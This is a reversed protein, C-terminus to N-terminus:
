HSLRSVLTRADQLDPTNLGETFWSYVASLRKRAEDRRGQKELVRALSTTARLEFSKASQARAIDVATRFCLEAQALKHPDQMLMLEGKLRHLESSQWRENTEESLRMARALAQLGQEATGIQLCGEGFYGLVFAFIAGLADLGEIGRRMEAIGRERDENEMLARGHVVAFWHAHFLFGYQSALRIGAESQQQSAQWSRMQVNLASAYALINVARLPLNQDQAAGLAERMRESAQDPYGLCWLTVGLYGRANQQEARQRSSLEITRELYQRSPQFDGLYMATEGMALYGTAIKATEGLAEAVALLEKAVDGSTGPSRYLYFTHLGVLVNFLQAMNNVQNCLDRARSLTQEVEPATFGKTARLSFGFGIRLPLELKARDTGAPLKEVLKLGDGFYGLAERHAARGAAQRGALCLYKAAQPVNASRSYHHALESLHDDLRDPFLTEIAGATREHLLRRRATLMSNYAVEQTLAHKFKYVSDHLTPQEYIFEGLRLNSLTRDLTESAGSMEPPILASSEPDLPRGRVVLKILRLPFEQGMVALTQLLEKEDTALRDIRSALIRQVTPPIELRTLPQVLKVPGTRVLVGRETLAQVIEEMFFPNGVTKDIILHKLPALEGDDGLLATLMEEASEKGLPDLRLQVYHSKSGWDHRYEPRYNALFLIRANTISDAILNLFAQSEDDFWHLDEFVLVITQNLSERLFIQKLADLTRSRKVPSDMEFPAAPADGDSIGLLASVYPLTNELAPDLTTLRARVKKYRLQGDDRQDIGFYNHLLELVPQYASAKGHSVSYTELVMCDGTVLRKFEHFLRSKGSGAEGVAAVIQGRGHRSLDLARMMEAIEHERGVFKTLGRRTALEFHSRLPGAALVEFANISQSIGKVTVLGMAGLRFYGEVLRQTNESVVVSGAPAITQLREALNATLGIPAYEARGTARLRRVVVEGTNVGVRAQIPPYGSAALKAAHRKIAEQLALAAHLALRPHEEHSVPAGFLAFIGDGVSQVVYGDFRRVADSMLQLAPDVVVRAEEPDLKELLETSGKIDAFLATITKREGEIAEAASAAEGLEV